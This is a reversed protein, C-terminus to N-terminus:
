QVACDVSDDLIEEMGYKYRFGLKGLKNSHAQVSPLRLETRLCWTLSVSNM